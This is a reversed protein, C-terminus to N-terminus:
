GAKLKWYGRKALRYVMSDAPVLARFVSKSSKELQNRLYGIPARRRYAAFYAELEDETRAGGNDAYKAVYPTFHPFLKEDGWTGHLTTKMFNGILLDDFVRYAIATMLSTRPAEFTIGREHGEGLLVVHERGGVVFRVFDLFTELHEVGKWYLDLQPGDEPELPEDWRDGFEEPARTEIRREDPSIEDVEGTRVDVQVFAPLLSKREHPFERAYDELHTTYVDAWASDTRQYRHMSSFPIFTSIGFTDLLRAIQPGVADRRAAVPPVLAGSDDRFNIMDADGYGSLAVLYSREYRRAIKRVFPGWGCDSADNLNVVLTGGVDVLVISDQNFDAVSLVRVRSSLEIWRRDPLIQVRFGQAELERRIRGGVHDAVLIVKDRLVELSDANLHDPHGHSFWIFPADLVAATQEPPVEHSLAWSGFYASGRLWPDTALIPGRDHVILTANGITEFGLEM